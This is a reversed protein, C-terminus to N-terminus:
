RCECSSGAIWASAGSSAFTGKLWDPLRDLIRLPPPLRRGMDRWGIPYRDGDHMYHRTPSVWSGNLGGRQNLASRLTGSTHQNVISRGVSHSWEKGTVKTLSKPDYRLFVAKSAGGGLAGLSGALLVDTASACPNTLFELGAGVAFGVLHPVFAIEGTPDVLSVPNGEVYTYTNAGGVLGIPDSQTYRGSPPDYDRFGNYHLGSETDHYQGPLRLPLVFAGAGQPNADPVGGGFPDVFWTWRILNNRDVVIRPAGLHDAHIYHVLPAAAGSGNPTFVAVPISGLWAYERIPAGGYGYEGLLQGQLDYVFLITSAAGSSDFKRVRRGLGDVSYFTAVGAKTLSALRGALDHGATYAGDSTMNGANDYGFTRPLNSTSLLRNSTTATTYLNSAGNLATLTRNGSADYAIGWTTNATSIGTLRGLEDYAFGQNLNSLAAGSAADYHVYGTIRDAADYNLDRWLPGIRQRVLRGVGDHIRVHAQVGSALHWLWSKVAGYPEWQIASILPAAAGNLDPALSMSVPAGGSYAISLRRGSPYVITTVNGAADYGYTVSFSVPNANTGSAPKVTQTDVIVRGQADYAYQTSNWPSDTSTLRGAGFSFGAGSQDYSWRYSLSNQGVQSFAIGTLRNLADYTYVALVGRSDIRTRLNGADDFTHSATGTDPSVLSHVDGLGNRAYQTVLNRPDTVQTVADRGSYNLRIVGSRADTSDMLRNLTDYRHTTVFGLGSVGPAEISRSFNGNAEYEFNVVPVPSTPPAPVQAAAATAVACPWCRMFSLM